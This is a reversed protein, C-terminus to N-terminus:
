GQHALNGAARRRTRLFFYVLGIMCLLLGASIPRTFFVTWNENNAALGNRLNEEVYPGLVLGLLIPGVPIGFAMMFYGILGAIIIFSVEFGTANVAYGGAASLVAVVPVLTHTPVQVLYPLLRRSALGVILLLVNAAMLMVLIHMFKDGNDRIFFPGPDIGQFLLAGILVATVPDGPIGVTLLPVLAGGTVANNSTECAIVGKEDGKGYQDEPKANRVAEGYSIWSAIIPGTGPLVGVITGIVASKFTLWKNRAIIGFLWVLRFPNQGPLTTTAVDASAAKTLLETIAFLGILAPLLPIGGQLEVMGFDFRMTGAIPDNGFTSLLVGMFGAAIGKLLSPGSVGAVCVLGLMALSFYEVSTFSLAIKALSPAVLGLVLASFIGGIFSCFTALSMARNAEGKQAMPYGDFGTAANAPTGPTNILIAPFSGAFYGSCYAGLLLAMAQEFGLRFTFPTLIAIGATATVGPLAGFILGAITGILLWMLVNPNALQSLAYVVHDWSIMDM